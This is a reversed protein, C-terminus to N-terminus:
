IGARELLYSKCRSSKRRSTMRVSPFLNVKPLGIRYQGLNLCMSGIGFHVTRQDTSIYNNVPLISFHQLWMVSIPQAQTAAVLYKRRIPARQMWVLSLQSILLMTSSTQVLKLIIKIPLSTPLPHPLLRGCPFRSPRWHWPTTSARQWASEGSLPLCPSCKQPANMETAKEVGKIGM